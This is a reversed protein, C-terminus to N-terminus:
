EIFSAYTLAKDKVPKFSFFCRVEVCEFMFKCFTIHIFSSLRTKIFPIIIIVVIILITSEIIGNIKKRHSVNVGLFM